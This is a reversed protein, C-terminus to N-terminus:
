ARKAATQAFVITKHRDTQLFIRKKIFSAVMDCIYIKISNTRVSNNQTQRNAFFVNKKYIQGGHRMNKKKMSNTRMNKKKMSNTRM